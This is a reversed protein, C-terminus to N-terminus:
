GTVGETERTRQAEPDYGQDISEKDDETMEDNPRAMRQLLENVSADVDAMTVDHKELDAESIQMDRPDPETMDGPM